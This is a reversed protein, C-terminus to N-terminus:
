HNSNYINNKFINIEAKRRKVLGLTGGNTVDSMEDAGESYKKQNIYKKIKTEGDNTGGSNLFDTGTNFVLSVLADFENQYLPVKIDSIISKEFEILKKNFLILAKDKTIGEKFETPISIEECKKKAILHGYGITCYDESDNYPMAEFKEWSKIFDKGKESTKLDKPAKRIDNNTITNTSTLSKYGERLIDISDLLDKRRKFPMIENSLSKQIDLGEAGTFYEFHLMYVTTGGIKLRVQGNSKILKGTKGIEDKQKLVTGVEVIISDKDLEGYRIIFERGDTTKHKVTVQYTRDYFLRVDLVIGDCIAVVTENPNTYLDRAAHRRGGDRNANFTAMNQRQEAAWYYSNWKSEKDNEPKVLLPFIISNNSSNVIEESNSDGEVKEVGVKVSVNESPSSFYGYVIINSVDIGKPFTCTMYNQGDIIKEAQHKFNEIKKDDYKYAWKISLMETETLIADSTAKFTYKEGQKITNIPKNENDFPGEIKIVKKSKRWFNDMVAPLSKLMGDSEFYTNLLTSYEYEQRQTDIIKDDIYDYLQAYIRLIKTNIFDNIINKANPILNIDILLKKPDPEFFSNNVRIIVRHRKPDYGTCSIWILYETKPPAGLKKLNIKTITAM